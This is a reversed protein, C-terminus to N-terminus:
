WPYDPYEAANYASVPFPQVWVRDGASAGQSDIGLLMLGDADAMSSIWASSQNRTPTAHLQGDGHRLAVRVFEARGHKKRYDATLVAQVAPVFPRPDGLAQRIVPRVFQLFNVTCSVPNGPLGFVPMGGVRGLALPKGPKARVKWFVMEAGADQMADKVLDFDGVSVGGTSLLLQCKAQTAREFAARISSLNDRAIGCDIAEGGADTVLAMLAATNSSWIQGPQLPAGTPCIEDGTALIGVRVRKAVEVRAHGQSALLGLHGAQLATGRTLLTQGISLEEGRRRIHQGKRPMGCIVVHEGDMRTNEVMVVTDAGQPVMAGTMIRAACGAPLAATTHAGAAITESVMLSAVAPPLSAPAGLDCSTQAATDEVPHCDSFRIAFGDMASNDWRPQAHAVPVDSSLIRGAAEHLPVSETTNSLAMAMCRQLAEEVRLM